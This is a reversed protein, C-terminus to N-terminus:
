SDIVAFSPFDGETELVDAASQDRFVALEFAEGDGAFVLLEDGRLRLDLARGDEDGGLAHGSGFGDAEAPRIHGSHVKVVLL